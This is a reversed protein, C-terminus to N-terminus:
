APGTGGADKRIYAIVEDIRDEISAQPEYQLVRRARDIDAVCNQLEGPQAPAREVTAGPAIREVLLDAIRNVSTARGTGINCVQGGADADLAALCGAVIDSVHVFDRCQEGSGFVIPPKGELLRRTFITIVGVYPTFTQRTGYTNFFRLATPEIGMQPCLHLCYREAALKSIGYGSIPETAYTEDVPRVEASDAYVAMSSALILKRPRTKACAELVRLTGLLNTQADDVFCDSSDRISVRAALHFVADAGRLAKGLVDVDRIDAEVLEVGPPVNSRRGMSLNDYAVVERGRASLAECLHSGIFGAGGTVLVCQSSM